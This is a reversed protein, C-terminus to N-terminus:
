VLRFSCCSFGRHTGSTFYILSSLFQYLDFWKGESVSKNSLLCLMSILM